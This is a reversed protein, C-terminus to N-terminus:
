EFTKELHFSMQKQIFNSSSHQNWYNYALYEYPLGNCKKSNKSKLYKFCIPQLVWKMSNNTTLNIQM